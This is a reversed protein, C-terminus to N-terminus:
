SFLVTTSNIVFDILTTQLNLLLRGFRSYLLRGESSTRFIKYFCGHHSGIDTFNCFSVHFKWYHALLKMSAILFM